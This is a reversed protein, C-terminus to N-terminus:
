LYGSITQYSYIGKGKVFTCKSHIDKIAYIRCDDSPHHLPFEAKDSLQRCIHLNENRSLVMGGFLFYWNETKRSEIFIVRTRLEIWKTGIQDLM